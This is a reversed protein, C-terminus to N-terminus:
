QANDAHHCCQIWVMERNFRGATWYGHSKGQKPINAYHRRDLHIRYSGATKDARGVSAICAADASRDFDVHKWGANMQALAIAIPIVARTHRISRRACYHLGWAPSFDINRVAAPSAM